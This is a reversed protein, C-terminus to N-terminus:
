VRRGAGVARPRGGHRGRQGPDSGDQQEMTVTIRGGPPTFKVANDLLNGFVQRLRDADGDTWAPKLRETILYLGAREVVGRYEAVAAELVQDLRLPQREM